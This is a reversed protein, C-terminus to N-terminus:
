IKAMYTSNSGRLLSAQREGLHLGDCFFYLRAGNPSWCIALFRARTLFVDIDYSRHRHSLSSCPFLTSFKYSGSSYSTVQSVTAGVFTQTLMTLVTAIDIFMNIPFSLSNWQTGFRSLSSYCSIINSHLLIPGVWSHSQKNDTCCLPLNHFSIYVLVLLSSLVSFKCVRTYVSLYACM